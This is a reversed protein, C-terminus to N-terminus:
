VADNASLKVDANETHKKQKVINHGVLCAIAGAIGVGITQRTTLLPKEESDETAVPEEGIDEGDENGGAVAFEVNLQPWMVTALAGALVPSTSLGRTWGNTIIYEFTNSLDGTGGGFTNGALQEIPTSDVIDSMKTVDHQLSFSLDGVSAVIDEFSGPAWTVVHDAARALSSPPSPGPFLQYNLKM